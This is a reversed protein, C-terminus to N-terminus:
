TKVVLTIALGCALAALLVILIIMGVMFRYLWKGFDDMVGRRAHRGRRASRPSM